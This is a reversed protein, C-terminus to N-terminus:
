FLLILLNYDSVKPDDDGDDDDDDGEDDQEQSPFIHPHIFSCM